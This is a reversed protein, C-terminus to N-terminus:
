PSPTLAVTSRKALVVQNDVAYLLCPGDKGARSPDANCAALAAEEAARQTAGATNVFLNGWPHIAAAKPARVAPYGQVERSRRREDWLGPIKAPDFTGAYAVRPMAVGFPAGAEPLPRLAENLALIRCPKGYRVQCRELTWQESEVDTSANPVFWTEGDATAAYSKLPRAALYNAVRGEVNTMRPFMATLRAGLAASVDAPPPPAATTASVLRQPLVVDNGIAYLFCPGTRNNVVPDANCRALVETEAERQSTSATVIFIRGTAHLAAAKAPATRYYGAIDARRSDSRTPIRDPDFPGSYDVRPMTKAFPEGPAPLPRLAENTAVLRCLEGHRVQCGELAHQEAESESTREPSFWSQGSATVVIAKHGAAGIYATARTQAGTISPALAVLRDALAARFDAPPSTAVIVPPAVPPVAPAGTLAATGPSPPATAAGSPPPRGALMTPGFSMAAWGIGAFSAAAVLGILPWRSRGSAQRPLQVQVPPPQVPAAPTEVAAAPSGVERLAKVRAVVETLVVERNRFLDRWQVRNLHYGLGENPEIDEVRIVFLPKRQRAAEDVEKEIEESRNAETSLVLLFNRSSRIGKVIESAWSRSGAPIDRPAIWCVLGRSELDAVVDEAVDKGDRTGYSVFLDRDLMRTRAARM